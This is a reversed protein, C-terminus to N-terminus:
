TLCAVFVVTLMLLGKARPCICKKSLNVVDLMQSSVFYLLDSVSERKLLSNSTSSSRIITEAANLRNTGDAFVHDARVHQQM